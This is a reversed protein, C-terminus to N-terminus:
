EIMLSLFTARIDKVIWLILFSLLSLWFVWHEQIIKKIFFCDKFKSTIPMQYKQKMRRNNGILIVKCFFIKTGGSIIHPKEKNCFSSRKLPGLRFTKKTKSITAKEVEEDVIVKDVSRKGMPPM